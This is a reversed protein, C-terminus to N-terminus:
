SKATVLYRILSDVLNLKAKLSDMKAPELEFTSVTFFGETDSGVQYSLKRKGWPDTEVVKGGLDQIFTTLQQSYNKFAEEGLSGKTITMIEYNKM